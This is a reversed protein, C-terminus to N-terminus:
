IIEASGVLSRCTDSYKQLIETRWKLHSNCGIFTIRGDNGALMESVQFSIKLGTTTAILGATLQGCLLVLLHSAVHPQAAAPLDWASIGHQAPLQAMCPHSPSRGVHHVLLYLACSHICTSPQEQHANGSM